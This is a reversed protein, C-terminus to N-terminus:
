FDVGESRALEDRRDLEEKCLEYDQKYQAAMTYNLSAEHNFQKTLLNRTKKLIKIEESLYNIQESLDDQLTQYTSIRALFDEDSAVFNDIRENLHSTQADNLLVKVEEAIM